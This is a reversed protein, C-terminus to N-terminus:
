HAQQSTEVRIEVSCGQEAIEHIFDVFDKAVKRAGAGILDYNKIVLRYPVEIANIGGTAISDNLADFNRGHWSPAEVVAFFADYLDDKSEWGAGDLVLEKM